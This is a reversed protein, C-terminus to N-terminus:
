VMHSSLLDGPTFGGQAVQTQLSSHRPHLLTNLVTSSDWPSADPLHTGTNLEIQLSSLLTTLQSSAPLFGKGPVVYFVQPDMFISPLPFFYRQDSFNQSFLNKNSNVSEDVDSYKTSLTWNQCLEKWFWAPSSFQRGPM